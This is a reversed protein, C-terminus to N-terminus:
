LLKLNLRPSELLFPRMFSVTTVCMFPSTKTNIIDQEKGLFVATVCALSLKSASLWDYISSLEITIKNELDVM